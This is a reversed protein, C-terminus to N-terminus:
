NPITKVPKNSLVSASQIAKAPKNSLVPLSLVEVVVSLVEVVVSLVEVVVWAVMRAGGPPCVPISRAVMVVKLLGVEEVAIAVVVIPVVVDVCAVVVVVTL